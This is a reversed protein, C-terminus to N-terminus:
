KHRRSPLRTQTEYDKMMKVAIGGLALLAILNPIVMLGNFCDSLAWVLDVKLFCGVIVLLAVIVAYVKVAKKGFLYRM